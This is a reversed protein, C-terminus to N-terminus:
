GDADRRLPLTFWGLELMIGIAVYGVIDLKTDVLSENHPDHGHGAINNLRAIKDWLRVALGETGFKLINRPGYDSQKGVLIDAIKQITWEHGDVEARWPARVDALCARALIDWRGLLYYDEIDTPRMHELQWGNQWGLEALVLLIADDWTTPPTPWTAKVLSIADYMRPTVFKETEM